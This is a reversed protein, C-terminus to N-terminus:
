FQNFDYDDLHTFFISIKKKAMDGLGLNMLEIILTWETCYTFDILMHTYLIM